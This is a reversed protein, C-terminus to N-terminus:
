CQYKPGLFPEFNGTHWYFSKGEYLLLTQSIAKRKQRTQECNKDLNHVVIRPKQHKQKVSTSHNTTFGLCISNKTGTGSNLPKYVHFDTGNESWMHTREYEPFSYFSPLHHGRCNSISIKGGMSKKEFIFHSLKEWTEVKRSLELFKLSVTKVHFKSDMDLKIQGHKFQNILSMTHLIFWSLFHMKQDWPFM